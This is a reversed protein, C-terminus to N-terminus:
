DFAERDAIEDRKNNVNLMGKLKSLYANFTATISSQSSAISFCFYVRDAEPLTTLPKAEISRPGRAGTPQSTEADAALLAAILSPIM